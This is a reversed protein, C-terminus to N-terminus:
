RSFTQKIVHHVSSSVVGYARLLSALIKIDYSAQHACNRPIVCWQVIFSTIVQM